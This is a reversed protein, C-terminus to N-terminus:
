NLRINHFNYYMIYVTHIHLQTKNFYLQYSHIFSFIYKKFCKCSGTSFYFLKGPLKKGM